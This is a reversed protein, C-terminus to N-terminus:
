TITFHGTVAEVPVLVIKPNSGETGSTRAVVGHYLGDATTGYVRILTQTRFMFLQALTDPHLAWAGAAVYARQMPVVSATAGPDDVEPVEPEEIVPPPDPDEEEIEPDPEPEPDPEVPVEPELVLDPDVATNKYGWTAIINNSANKSLIGSVDSWPIWQGSYQAPRGMPDLWFVQRVGNYVRTGVIAFAHSGTYDGVWKKLYEPLQPCKATVRIAADNELITILESATGSGYFMPADPLLRGMANKTHQVTTGSNLAAGSNKHLVWVFNEPPIYSANRELPLEYGMWILISGLASFMCSVYPPAFYGRQTVFQTRGALPQPVTVGNPLAM